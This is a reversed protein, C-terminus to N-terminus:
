SAPAVTVGKLIDGCVPTAGNVLKFSSGQLKVMWLCNDVGGVINTRDNIDLKHSGYLGLATFDHINSLATILSANTPKPGAAKLGQVLLGVSVYGGYNAFTPEGALGASRLDSEFQKTAPTQMEVPEFPVAFSVGQAADIAGPGGQTLDGGYGTFLLATKLNVGQDRLGTLLAFATNPEVSAYFGDIKANKMGLVEPGVNTSGFPFKADLFGVSIGAAKASEAAASAAESSSPSISYGVSALRTVGQMKLYKGATTTVMTTHTAGTISFMNEATIWEPGDHSSGVVPIHHATLYNAAGFALSSFSIVAQVHDQTVFKQAVSLATTPNTQSDGVVYKIKYGERAAYYTGAKVGGVVTKSSSAAPGTIDALLGVTVTQLASASGSAGAGASGGSGGGGSSCGAAVILAAAASLM